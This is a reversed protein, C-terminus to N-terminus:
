NGNEKYNKDIHLDFIKKAQDLDASTPGPKTIKIFGNQYVSLYELDALLIKNRQLAKIYNCFNKYVNLPVVKKLIKLRETSIFPTVYNEEDAYLLGVTIQDDTMSTLKYALFSINAMKVLNLQHPYELDM